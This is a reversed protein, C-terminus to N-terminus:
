VGPDAGLTGQLFELYAPSGVEELTDRARALREEIRLRRAEDEYNPRALFGQLHLVHREWLDSDIRQKARLREAYWRSALLADRTFLGRIEPHELDKGECSGDRMITLLARLPPCALAITGDDFYAQAIRRHGSAINDMGDAFVDPDQTEPRLMEETFVVHPHNFVRGFFMRVFSATIRYGLRSALVTVGRHEFDRCRELHGEGILFEAAREQPTMRCWVEPILLSVDHDVRVRPGVYGAASIFTEHGTLLHSVLANNLDIIPPLANFPAKTLAGESGAGTMSPSKGTLSCAFEMFLEPLELYHIPNFVALPRIRAAPEPPNNRRGPMVANVPTLVPDGAPIRRRLRTCTEALYLRRPEVLDPRLQLYRTNQSAKGAVLRPHASSVFYAPKSGRAATRILKRMPYTYRMFGIAEDKIEAADASTLPEYNSFFNDPEAFDAETQRDYGRHIADDPRQFLRQECNEVFKVAADQYLPNLNRLRAAPVIV